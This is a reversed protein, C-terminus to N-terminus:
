PACQPKFRSAPDFRGCMQCDVQRRAATLKSPINRAFGRYGLLGKGALMKAQVPNLGWFEGLMQADCYGYGANFYANLIRQDESQAFASPQRLNMGALLVM